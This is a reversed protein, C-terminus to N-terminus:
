WAPRDPDASGFEVCRCAKALKVCFTERPQEEHFNEKDVVITGRRTPSFHDGGAKSFLKAPATVIDPHEDRVGMGGEM